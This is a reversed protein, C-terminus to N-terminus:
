ADPFRSLHVFNGRVQKGGEEGVSVTCQTKSTDVSFQLVNSLNPLFLPKQCLLSFWWDSDETHAGAGAQVICHGAEGSEQDNIHLM